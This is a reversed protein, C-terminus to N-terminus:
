LNKVFYIQYEKVFVWDHLQTESVQAPTTQRKSWPCARRCFTKEVPALSWYTPTILFYDNDM